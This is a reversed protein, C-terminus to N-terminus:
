EGHENRRNARENRVDRNFFLHELCWVPQRVHWFRNTRMEVTRADNRTRRQRLMTLTARAVTWHTIWAHCM